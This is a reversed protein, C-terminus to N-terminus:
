VEYIENIEDILYKSSCCYVVARGQACGPKVFVGNDQPAVILLVSFIIVHYLM